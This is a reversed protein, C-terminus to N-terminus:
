HQHEVMAFSAAAEERRREPEALADPHIYAGGPVPMFHEPYGWMGHESIDLGDLEHRASVRLGVTKKIAWFTGFSLTFVTAFAVTM